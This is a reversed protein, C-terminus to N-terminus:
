RMTGRGTTMASIARISSVDIEGTLPSGGRQPDALWDKIKALKVKASPEGASEKGPARGWHVLLDPEGGPHPRGLIVFKPSSVTSTPQSNLQIQYLVHRLTPWDAQLFEALKAAEVVVPDGWGVGLGLPLTQGVFIRPFLQAFEPAIYDQKSHSDYGPLAVGEGDIPQLGEPVVVM